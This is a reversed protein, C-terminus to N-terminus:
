QAPSPLNCNKLHSAHFTGREVASQVDQLVYTHNSVKKKIKYPGEFLLLFKKTEAKLASSANNAKLLVLDGPKFVTFRSGTNKLARRAAKGKLTAEALILKEASSQPAIGVPFVLNPPLLKVRPSGLQLENPTYGTSEHVVSNLFDAFHPVEWAWRAHHESCYTRCLRGLERMVRESPNACPHRVSSYVLKIGAAEMESKWLRSTFQTGHDQLIRRVLGYTPFYEKFMRNLIARSTAKKLTYLTVHKTFLNLIVVIYCAGGRSRVLPGYIDLAIIDMKDEPVIQMQPPNSLRSIKAKQCVLCVNVRQKIRRYMNTWWVEDRLALWVKYVGFHGLSSHYADIFENILKSPICLFFQDEHSGRKYLLGRHIVFTGKLKENSSLERKIQQLKSDQSQYLEMDTLLRRFDNSFQLPSIRFCRDMPTPFRVCAHRSLADAQVNEHGPIHIVSYSYEQLALAWRTVRPSLLRCTNIYTMAKCDTYLTFHNSLLYIRWKQMGFLAGLVEKEFSCYRRERELLLRSAYAVVHREGDVLQFLLAAIGINSADTQLCFPLRPDPHYLLTAQQLEHKISRFAEQQSEDWKWSARKKLLETLPAALESFRLTFMRDYQCLGLFKQLEKVNKPAIYDTIAQVREPDPRVGSSSLLYGLYPIEERFFNCKSLKLTLGAEGLRQFIRSLHTLHEEFSSSMVLLDDVYAVLFDQYDSGFITDICRSFSSVASKLGFPLVCFRYTKTGVMFGTYQKDEERLPCQWYGHTLDLSSMVKKGSMLRIIEGIPRPLEYDPEMVSNLKRADLCVRVSGDKKVTTMLPSIYKSPAREIVNWSEMQTIAEAVAKRHAVPIPYPKVFFETSDKLKITHFYESTRGPTDSFVVSFKNLLHQFKCKQIEELSCSAIMSSFNKEQKMSLAGPRCIDKNVIACVNVTDPASFDHYNRIEPIIINEEGTSVIICEKSLNIVVNFFRLFDCGILVPYALDPILLFEHSFEQHEARFKLQMQLKVKRFKSKFAGVVRIGTCTFHPIISHFNFLQTWVEASIASVQSGSDILAAFKYGYLNIVILPSRSDVPTHDFDCEELLEEHPNNIVKLVARNIKVSM